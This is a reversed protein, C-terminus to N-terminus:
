RTRAQIRERLVLGAAAMGLLLAAIAQTRHLPRSLRVAPAVVEADTARITLGGGDDPDARLLVGRVALVDGRWSSSGPHTVLDAIDGELWVALGSNTGRFAGYTPLPGSELAYADDNMLVWAGGDRSLVDGIVEGIYLVSRQDFVDPCEVVESSTVRGIPDPAPANQPLTSRDPLTRECSVIQSAPDNAEQAAPVIFDLDDVPPPATARLWGVLTFGLITLLVVGGIQAWARTSVPRDHSM